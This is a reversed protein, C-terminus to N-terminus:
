RAAPMRSPGCPRASSVSRAVSDRMPSNPTSSSSNKMPMSFLGRSRNVRQRMVKMPVALWITTLTAQM